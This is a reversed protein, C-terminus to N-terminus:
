NSLLAVTPEMLIHAFKINPQLVLTLKQRDPFILEQAANGAPNLGEAATKQIEPVDTM